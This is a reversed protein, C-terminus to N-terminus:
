RCLLVFIFIQQHQEHWHHQIISIQKAYLFRKEVIHTACAPFAYCADGYCTVCMENKM